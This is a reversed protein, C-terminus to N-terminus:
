LNHTNVGHTESYEWEPHQKILAQRAASAEEETYHYGCWYDKRAHTVVAQYKGNRYDFSVGNYGSTNNSKIKCNRMNVNRSVDRLNEIRNDRKNHNIHDIEEDPWKGYEAAWVLTHVYFNYGCVILGLYQGKPFGILEGLAQCRKPGNRTKTRVFGGLERNYNSFKQLENLVEKVDYDRFSQNM